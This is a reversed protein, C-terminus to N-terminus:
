EDRDGKDVADLLEQKLFKFIRRCRPPVPMREAREIDHKLKNLIQADVKILAM